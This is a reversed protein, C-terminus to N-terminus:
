KLDWNNLHRTFDREPTRFSAGASGATKGRVEWVHGGHDRYWAVARDPTSRYAALRNDLDRPNILMYFLEFRRRHGREDPAHVVFVFADVGLDSARRLADPKLQSWSHWGMSANQNDYTRSEKVQLRVFRGDREVLLDIGVDKAPLYVTWGRDELKDGVLVEGPTPSYSHRM